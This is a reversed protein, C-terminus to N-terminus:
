YADVDAGLDRGFCKSHAIQPGYEEYESQSIWMGEFTQMCALMSAGIWAGNNREPRALVKLTSGPALVILEKKMREGIGPFMTSGGSLVINAYLYNQIDVDCKVISQYTAVHIGLSEKGMLSPQFLVEPCRFREANLTIPELDDPSIYTKELASCESAVQMESDFDLAIYCLKEKVDRVLVRKSENLTWPLFSYGSETLLWGMYETLDRGALDLRLIAHAVVTGEYIPVTASVGDGIQVVLGTSQGTGLLSLVAQIAIHMAPVNFTEFMVQTMRERNAKPNLPGEMLLVPYQIPDVRLENYFTHHWIIEMDNWNRVIGREIPYSLLLDKRRMAEHGVLGSDKAAEKPRGVVSPFIARPGDDGAFGAKCMSSGNQIVLVLDEDDM